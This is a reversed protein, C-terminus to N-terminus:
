YTPFIILTSTSRSMGIRMTDIHSMSDKHTQFSTLHTIKLVIDLELVDRLELEKSIFLTGLDKGRQDRERTNKEPRCRVRFSDLSKVM